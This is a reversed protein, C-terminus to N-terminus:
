IDKNVYTLIEEKLHSILKFNGLADGELVIPESNPVAVKLIEEKTLGLLLYLMCRIAHIHSVIGVNLDSSLDFENFFDMIRACVETYNEGEPAKAVFDRRFKLQDEKKFYEPYKIELEDRFEGEFIGLSRERIRKDVKLELNTKQIMIKATEYARILDSSYVEDLSLIYESNMISEAQMRGKETLPVNLAGCFMNLRTEIKNMISEGHRVLVIRM